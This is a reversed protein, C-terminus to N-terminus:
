GRRRRRAIAALRSNIRDEDIDAPDFPRGYWTTMAELFEVQGSLRGVDDPPCRREGSLLIPV